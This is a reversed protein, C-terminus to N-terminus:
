RRTSRPARCDNSCLTPNVKQSGDFPSATRSEPNTHYPHIRPGRAAENEGPLGAPRSQTEQRRAFGRPARLATFYEAYRVGLDFEHRDPRKGAVREYSGSELGPGNRADTPDVSAVEAWGAETDDSRLLNIDPSSMVGVLALHHHV